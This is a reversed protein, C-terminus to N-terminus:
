LELKGNFVMDKLKFKYKLVVDALKTSFEVEKDDLSYATSRPFAFVIEINKPTGGIQVDAPKESDKGKASLSSLDMLAKKLTEPNGRMLGRMPGSLVVVYSPEPRDLTQKAEDSTAAKEGYKMRVVAQKMPLASQWRAVITIAAGGGGDPAAGGGGGGAGGGGGRGGVGGGVGGGDCFHGSAVPENGCNGAVNGGPPTPGSMSVSFPRAWPSNSIMKQLDKDSWDSSPKSQWFDAAGLCCAFVVLSALLKKM